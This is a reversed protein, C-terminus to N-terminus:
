PLVDISNRCSFLKRVWVQAPKEFWYASALSLSILVVFFSAMFIPTDAYGSSFGAQRATLIVICQLPFHLLYVPYSIDGIRSFRTIWHMAGRAELVVLAAITVPFLAFIMLFRVGLLALSASQEPALAITFITLFFRTLVDAYAEALAFGWLAAFAGVWFATPFRDINDHLWEVVLWGIFFSILGRGIHPTVTMQLAVGLLVGGLLVAIRVPRSRLSLALIYFAAYLLMEVSISWSPGNFSPGAELGWASAFTLNLVFHYLDTNLYVIGYGYIRLSYVQLIAIFLTTLFLLPYLRSIRRLFFERCGLQGDRIAQAFFYAFIFGSIGFFLDVAVWGYEYLPKALAYFPSTTRDVDAEPPVNHDFHKWHNLVVALAALGRLVDLSGIRSLPVRSM